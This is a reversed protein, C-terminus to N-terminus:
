PPRRGAREVARRAMTTSVSASSPVRDISATSASGHSTRGRDQGTGRCGCSERSVAGATAGTGRPSPACRPRSSLRRRRCGRSRRRWEDAVLRDHGRLLGGLGDDEPESTANKTTVARGSARSRATGRARDHEGALDPGGYRIRPPIKTTAPANTSSVASVASWPLSHRVDVLEDDDAGTGGPQGGRDVGAAGVEVRDHDLADARAPLEHEGGVDLVEGAEGVADEPGLQHHLEALLRLAETGLEDGGVGVADVERSAGNPTHTPSCRTGRRVRHDDGGARRGAHEAQGDSCRSSPWPTDVQAVQSPKKKRSFGMATTPPPSEAISSAIKRM